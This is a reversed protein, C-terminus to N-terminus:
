KVELLQVIFILDSRPPIPGSGREGYALNYPIYFEYVAGEKMLQVGETWGPIVRNLPFEIAEGHKFSSDFVTGDLLKGEYNVKVVDTAVPSKGTGEEVVRYRLGSPTSHDFRSLDVKPAEQQVGVDGNNDSAGAEAKNSCAVMGLLVVAGAAMGRIVKHFKM